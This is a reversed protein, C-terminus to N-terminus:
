QHDAICHLENIKARTTRHVHGTAYSLRWPDLIESKYQWQLRKVAAEDDRGYYGDDPLEENRTDRLFAELEKVQNYNNRHGFKINTTLLQHCPGNNVKTGATQAVPEETVEIVEVTETAKPTITEKINEVPTSVKTPEAKECFNKIGCTYWRWCIACWIIFLVLVLWGLPKNM